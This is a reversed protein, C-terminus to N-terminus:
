MVSDDGGGRNKQEQDFDLGLRQSWTQASLMGNKFATEDIQCENTQDRVQLSPTSTQLQVHQRIDHPLRGAHAAAAIVRGLVHAGECKM